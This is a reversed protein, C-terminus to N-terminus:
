MFAQKVSHSQPMPAHQMLAPVVCERLKESVLRPGGAIAPIAVNAMSQSENQGGPEESPRGLTQREM